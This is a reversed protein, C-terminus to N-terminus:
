IIFMRNERVKSRDFNGKLQKSDNRHLMNRKGLKISEPSGPTLLYGEHTGGNAGVNRKMSGVLNCFIVLSLSHLNPPQSIKTKYWQNCPSQDESSDGRSGGSCSSPTIAQKNCEKSSAALLMSQHVRLQLDMIGTLKM